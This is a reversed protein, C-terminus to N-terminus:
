LMLCADPKCLQERKELGAVCIALHTGRALELAYIRNARRTKACRQAHGPVGLGICGLNDKGFRDGRAERRGLFWGAATDM